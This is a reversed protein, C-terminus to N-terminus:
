AMKGQYVIGSVIGESANLIQHQLKITTLDHSARSIKQLVTGRCSCNEDSSGSPTTTSSETENAMRRKEVPHPGNAVDGYETQRSAATSSANQPEFKLDFADFADEDEEDDDFAPLSNSASSEFAILRKNSAVSKVTDHRIRRRGDSVTSGRTDAASSADYAVNFRPAVPPPTAPPPNSALVNARTACYPWSSCVLAFLVLSFWKQNRMQPWSPARNPRYGAGQSSAGLNPRTVRMETAPGIFDAVGDVHVDVVDRQIIRFDPDHNHANLDHWNDEDEEEDM